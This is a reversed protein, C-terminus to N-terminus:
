GNQAEELVARQEDRKMELQRRRRVAVSEANKNM